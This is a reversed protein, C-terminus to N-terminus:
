FQPIIKSAINELLVTVEEESLTKNRRIEELELLLDFRKQEICFFALDVMMLPELSLDTNVYPSRFLKSYSVTKNNKKNFWM